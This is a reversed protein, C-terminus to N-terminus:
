ARNMVYRQYHSAWLLNVCTAPLSVVTSIVIIGNAVSGCWTVLSLVQFFVSERVQGTTAVALWNYSSSVYLFFSM